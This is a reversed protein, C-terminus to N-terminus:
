KLFVVVMRRKITTYTEAMIDYNAFILGGSSIRECLFINEPHM